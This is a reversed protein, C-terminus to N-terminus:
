DQINWSSLLQDNGNNLKLIMAGTDVSRGGLIGPSSIHYQYGKYSPSPFLNTSADYDGKLIVLGDTNFNSITVNVTQSNNTFEFLQSSEFTGQPADYSFYCLGNILPINTDLRRLEYYYEGEEISTDTASFVAQLQTSEYVHFSLGNGLTFYITKIRDGKNKRIILEFTWTSIDTDFDFVITRNSNIQFLIKLQAAGTGLIEMVM